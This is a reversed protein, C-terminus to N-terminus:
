WERLRATLNMDDDGTVRWSAESARAAQAVSRAGAGGILPRADSGGFVLPGFYLDLADVEGADHFSGALSPGGELLMSVVGREGLATLADGVREVRDGACRIVEAGATELAEVRDAPADPTAVVVLPAEGISEVLRSGTPLRAESDFVVRSPQRRPEGARATLLPDDALATGIGVAIADVEARRRHAQERSAEGSIWQSDGSRTATRGDLTLAGKLTVLPRGTRAHKRFPQNLRRAAAGDAEDAWVVVTGAETLLGAGRGSAKESPDDSAIVVRGLGAELIADACPPQRGQHACPEQTVYMTAGQPDLGRRRCDAIAATEAHLDGYREHAGAGVEQGDSVIVAGVRPNPSVDSHKVAAARELAARMWDRDSESYTTPDDM